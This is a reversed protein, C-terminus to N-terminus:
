NRRHQGSLGRASAALPIPTAPTVPRYDVTCRCLPHAPPADDGSSFIWDVPQWEADENALCEECVRTDDETIWRKEYKVGFAMAEAISAFGGAEFARSVETAAITDARVGGMTGFRGEVVAATKEYTDGAERARAREREVIDATTQNIGAAQTAANGYLWESLLNVFPKGDVRAQIMKSVSLVDDIAAADEPIEPPPNTLISFPVPVVKSRSFIRRIADIIDRPRLAEVATREPLSAQVALAGARLAPEIQLLAIFMDASTADFATKLASKLVAASLDGRTDALLMRNAIRGQKAFVTAVSSAVHRDLPKCVALKYRISADDFAEAIRHM